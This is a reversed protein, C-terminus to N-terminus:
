HLRDPLDERNIQWLAVADKHAFAFGDPSPMNLVERCSEDTM